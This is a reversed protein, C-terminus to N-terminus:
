GDDSAGKNEHGCTVWAPIGFVQKMIEFEASLNETRLVCVMHLNITAGLWYWSQPKHAKTYGLELQRLEKRGMGILFRKVAGYHDAKWKRARYASHERADVDRVTIIVVDGEPVDKLRFGHGHLCFYHTRTKRGFSMLAVKVSTGGTKGVHIYHVIQRGMVYRHWPTMLWQQLTYKYRRLKVALGNM